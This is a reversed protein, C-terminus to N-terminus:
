AGATDYRVRGLPPVSVIRRLRVRHWRSHLSSRGQYQLPVVGSAKQLANRIMELNARAYISSTKVDAHGLIAQIVV